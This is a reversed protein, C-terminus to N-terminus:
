MLGLGNSQSSWQPVSQQVSQQVNQTAGSSALQEEFEMLMQDDMMIDDFLKDVTEDNFEFFDFNMDSNGNLSSGTADRLLQPTQSSSNLSFPTCAVSPNSPASSLTSVGEMPENSLLGAINNMKSPEPLPLDRVSSEHPQRLMCTSAKTTANSDDVDVDGSYKMMTRIQKRKAFQEKTLNREVFMDYLRYCSIIGYLCFNFNFVRAFSQNQLQILHKCALAMLGQAFAPTRLLQVIVNSDDAPDLTELSKVHLRLTKDLDVPPDRTEKSFQSDNLENSFLAVYARIFISKSMSVISTVMDILNYLKRTENMNAALFCMRNLKYLMEIFHTLSLVSYKVVATGCIRKFDDDDALGDGLCEWMVQLTFICRVSDVVDVVTQYDEMIQDANGLNKITESLTFLTDGESKEINRILGYLASATAPTTRTFYRILTRQYRALRMPLSTDEQLWPNMYEDDLTLPGGTDFSLQADNIYLMRWIVKLLARESALSSSYLKDIDQHLGMAIAMNMATKFLQISKTGDGGDGDLPDTKKMHHMLILTQLSPLSARADFRAFQLLRRAYRSIRDKEDYIGDKVSNNLLLVVIKFVMLVLAIKAYDVNKNKVSIYCKGTAENKVFLTQFDRVLSGNDVVPLSVAWFSTTYLQIYEKVTEYEPLYQALNRLLIEPFPTETDVYEEPPINKLNMKIKWERRSNSVHRMLKQILDQYDKHKESVTRWCTPGFYVVRDAKNTLYDWKKLIKEKFPPTPFNPTFEELGSVSGTAIRLKMAELEKKLKENEQSLVLVADNPDSSTEVTPIFPSNKYICLHAPINNKVCKGCPVGRDCKVKRAKCNTCTLSVRKRKPKQFDNEPTPYVGPPTRSGKTSASGMAQTSRSSQSM